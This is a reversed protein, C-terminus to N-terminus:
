SKMYSDVIDKFDEFSFCVEVLYGKSEIIPIVEKQSPTLRGKPKKMEIFLGPYKRNARALFLDPVGALAGTRKMKIATAIHRKGGNPVAFMLDNPYQLRFWEVAQAQIQDESLGKPKSQRKKKRCGTM